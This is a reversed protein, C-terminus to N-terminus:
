NCIEEPHDWLEKPLLLCLSRCLDSVLFGALCRWPLVDTFSSFPERGRSWRVGLIFLLSRQLPITRAYLSQAVVGHDTGTVM